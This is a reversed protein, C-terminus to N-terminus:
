AKLASPCAGLAKGAAAMQDIREAQQLARERSLMLFAGIQGDEKQIRAYHAEALAVATTQREQVASRAADITLSTLEM